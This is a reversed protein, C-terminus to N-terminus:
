AVTGLFLDPSLDTQDHCSLSFIQRDVRNRLSPGHATQLNTSSKVQYIDNNEVENDVSVKSLM